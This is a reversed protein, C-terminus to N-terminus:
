PISIFQFPYIIKLKEKQQAKILQNTNANLRMVKTKAANIKHSTFHAYKGVDNVNRQLVTVATRKRQLTFHYRRCLIPRRVPHYRDMPNRHQKRSNIKENDLRSSHSFPIRVHQLRIRLWISRLGAQPEM